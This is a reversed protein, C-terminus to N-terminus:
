DGRDIRRFYERLLREEEALTERTPLCLVAVLVLTAVIIGVTLM